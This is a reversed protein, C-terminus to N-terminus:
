VNHRSRNVMVRCFLAAIMGITIWLPYLLDDTKDYTIRWMSANLCFGLQFSIIITLWSTKMPKETNDQM